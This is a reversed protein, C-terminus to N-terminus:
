VLDHQTDAHTDKTLVIVDYAQTPHKLHVAQWSAEQGRLQAALWAQLSLPEGTLMASRADYADQVQLGRANMYSMLGALPTEPPLGQLMSAGRYLRLLARAHELLQAFPVSIPLCLDAGRARGQELEAEHAGIFLVPIALTDPGSKLVHLVDPAMLDAIATTLVILLPHHQRAMAIGESGSQAHLIPYGEGQLADRLDTLGADMRGIMLIPLPTAPMLPGTGVRPRSEPMVASTQEGTTHWPLAVYFTSGQGPASEVGISGQYHSIIEYCIALGLGTGQPKDTLGNTVLQQFRKFLRAQLDPPIGPGHDTVRVLLAGSAPATWAGVAEGATLARFTVLITEEPPSFKVANSLLNFLVQRIREADAVLPQLTGEIRTMVRLNQQEILPRLDQLAQELLEPVNLPQDHWAMRGAEIRAIDLVDNALQNLRQAEKQIIDLNSLTRNLADQVRPDDQALHPALNRQVLKHTVRAFGLVSTLPTRMEHSVTTIFDTKLRDLEKEHTVDRLLTVVGLAPDEEAAAASAKFSRRDSLTIETMFTSHPDRVAEAILRQLERGMEDNGLPRGVLDHAPRGFIAEAAPNALVVIGDPATVLLGDVMTRLTVDLKRKEQALTDALRALQRTQESVSSFLHANELAVTIQQGLAMFLDVDEPTFANVHQTEINFVGLLGERGILPIALESRVNPMGEVYRPDQHVDNCVVPKGSRAAAVTIGKEDNLSLRLAYTDEPYGVQYEIYLNQSAPDLLFIGVHPYAFVKAVTQVVAQMLARPDLISTITHSVQQLVTLRAAQSQVREYLRANQLAVAVQNALATLLATAHDDFAEARGCALHFVGIVREGSFMPIALEALVHSADSSVPAPYLVRQLQRTSAARAVVDQAPELILPLPDKRSFIDSQSVFSLEGTREDVLHLAVLPYGFTERVYHVIEHLLRRMDLLGSIREAAKLLLSLDRAQAQMQQYLRANHVASALQAAFLSAKRADEPTYFDPEHKDVTLLGIGEGQVSLPAGIWSRITTVGEVDQRKHGWSPHKQVDPIVLTRQMRVTEHSLNSEEPGFSAGLVTEPHEFGRCAAISLRGDPMLLLISASDFVIVQELQELGRNLVEQLDLTSNVMRALDALLTATRREQEAQRYLQANHLAVAAQHAVATLMRVDEESFAHRRESEVNFVGIIREGIRLPIALESHTTPDTRIFHSSEDVDQALYVKGTAAAHGVIGQGLPVGRQRVEPAFYNPSAAVYLTQENEDLLLISTNRFGFTAEVSNIIEQLVQMIDLTSNLRQSISQLILLEKRERIMHAQQRKLREQLRNFAGVMDGVEDHSLIPLPQLNVETDGSLENLRRTLYAMDRTFDLAASRNVVLIFVIMLLAFGGLVVLARQMLPSTLPNIRYVFGATWPAEGSRYVPTTVAAWYATEVYGGDAKMLDWQVKLDEYVLPVDTLLFGEDDLLFGYGEIGQLEELTDIWAEDTKLSPFIHQNLTQLLLQYKNFLTVRTSQYIMAYGLLALFVMCVFALLLMTTLQRDALSFRPTTLQDQVASTALLVPLLLQRLGLYILLALVSGVVIVLVSAPLHETLTYHPDLFSSLFDSSLTIFATGLIPLYFFRLPLVLAARRVQVLFEPPPTEGAQLRRGLEVIPRLARYVALALLLPVSSGFLLYNRLALQAALENQVTLVPGILALLVVGVTATGVVLGLAKRRIRLLETAM